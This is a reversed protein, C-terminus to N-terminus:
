PWGSGRFPFPSREGPEPQPVAAVGRRLTGSSSEGQAQATPLGLTESMKPSSRRHKLDRASGTGHTRTSM